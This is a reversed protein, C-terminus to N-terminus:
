KIHVICHLAALLILVAANEFPICNRLPFFVNSLNGLFSANFRGVNNHVPSIALQIPLYGLKDSFHFNEWKEFPMKWDWTSRDFVAISSLVYSYSYTSIDICISEHLFHGGVGPLMVYVRVVCGILMYAYYICQVKEGKLNWGENEM